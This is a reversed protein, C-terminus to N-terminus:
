STKVIEVLKIDFSLDMGALPHNADLTVTTETVETVLVPLLAGDQLVVEMQQGEEPKLDEPLEGRDIVAIMEDARPGYADDAAIKVEARQGPELGIVTQEFKPILNGEGIIFEMPETPRSHCVCSDGECEDIIGEIGESSDFISGDDLRGTYHVRVKDGNKAQAM